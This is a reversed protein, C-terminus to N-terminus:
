VSRTVTDSPPRDTLASTLTATWPPPKELPPPQATAPCEPVTDPRMSGHSMRRPHRPAAGHARRCEHRLWRVAPYDHSGVGRVDPLDLDDRVGTEPDRRPRRSHPGDDGSASLMVIPPKPFGGARGHEDDAAPGASFQSYVYPEMLYRDPDRGLPVLRRFLDVADRGRGLMARAVVNFASAHSFAAANEKWGALFRTILGISEDIKTFAPALSTLGYPTGLHREAADMCANLRDADAIGSIVAWTQSNLWIFGEKLGKAGVPSGDDKFARVFWEGDWCTENVIRRIEEARRTYREARESEGRRELVPM